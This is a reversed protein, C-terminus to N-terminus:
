RGRSDFSSRADPLARGLVRRYDAATNINDTVGPDPVACREVAGPSAELAARLHPSTRDRGIAQARSRRVILPHGPTNRYVPLWATGAIREDMRLLRRVTAARVRPADVPMLAVLPAGRRLAWRLGARASSLQGERWSRNVTVALGLTRAHRAVSGASAGVVVVIPEVGGQRLVDAVRALFSQAGPFPLLAKPRGM